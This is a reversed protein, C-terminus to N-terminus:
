VGEGAAVSALRELESRIEDEVPPRLGIPELGFVGGHPATARLASEAHKEVVPLVRAGVMEATAVVTLYRFRRPTSDSWSKRGPLNLLYAAPREVAPDPPELGAFVLAKAGEKRGFVINAYGVVEEGWDFTVTHGLPPSSVDPPALKRWREQSVGSKARPAHIGGDVAVREAFGPTAGEVRPLGWRGVPPTSWVRPAEVEAVSGAPALLEASYTRAVSWSEDSVLRLPEAGEVRLHLLFGGVGRGSRLEAAVRNTGPELLYGVEYTALPEGDRYSDAGVLEGNVYLFYAEDARCSIRARGPFGALEFDRFVFFSVGAAGDVPEAWIWKAAATPPGFAAYARHLGREALALIALALVLLLWARSSGLLARVPQRAM